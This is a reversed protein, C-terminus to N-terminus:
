KIKYICDWIADLRGNSYNWDTRNGQRFESDRHHKWYNAEKYLYNLFEDKSM